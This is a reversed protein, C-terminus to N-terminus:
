WPVVIDILSLASLFRNQGFMALSMAVLRMDQLWIIM